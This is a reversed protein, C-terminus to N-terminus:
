SREKTQQMTADPDSLEHAFNINLGLDEAIDNCAYVAERAGRIYGERRARPVVRVTMWLLLLSVVVLLVTSLAQSSLFEIV